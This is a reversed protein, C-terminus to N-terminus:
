FQRKRFLVKSKNNPLMTTGVFIPDPFKADQDDPFEVDYNLVIHSLLLKFENVAFLSGSKNVLRTQRCWVGAM